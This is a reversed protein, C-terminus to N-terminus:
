RGRVVANDCRLAFSAMDPGGPAGVDEFEVCQTEAMARAVAARDGVQVDAVAELWHLLEEAATAATLAPATHLTQLTNLRISYMRQPPEALDQCLRSVSALLSSKVAAGLLLELQGDPYFRGSADGWERAAVLAAITERERIRAVHGLEKLRRGVALVFDARDAQYRFPRVSGEAFSSAFTWGHCAQPGEGASSRAITLGTAPM